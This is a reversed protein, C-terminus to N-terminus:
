AAGDDPAEVAALLQRLKRLGLRMQTKTTGLPRRTRNAIEQHTLGGFYALAVVQRQSPPLQDLAAEIEWRDVRSWTDVAGGAQEDALQQLLPHDLAQSVCHPRNRQRRLEDVCLNRTISLLWPVVPGRAHDFSASRRWVRWFVEQVIDEALEASGVTRVALRCLGAAYREYLATLAHCDGAAISAILSQDDPEHAGRAARPSGAPMGECRSEMPPMSM